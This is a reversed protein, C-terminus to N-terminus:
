VAEKIEDIMTEFKIDSLGLNRKNYEEMILSKINAETISLQEVEINAYDKGDPISETEGATSDKKTFTIGPYQAKLEEISNFFSHNKPGEISVYSGVPIDRMVKALKRLLVEVVDEEKFYFTKFIMANENKIFRSSGTGTTLDLVVEVMGKDEEEKHKLRDWSGQAIIRDYKSYTHVHGINIFYKVIGLYDSETHSAPSTFGRLQYHFMGHMMALDVQEMGEEKMLDRVEQYTIQADHNIEDPIYLVSLGSGALTEIYIQDVYKFDFDLKLLEYVTRFIQSQGWDHSPTGELVRLIVSKRQCFRMLDGVFHLVEHYDVSNTDMKDDFFDGPIFIADLYGYKDSFYDFEERMSKITFSTPVRRHGLHIDSISLYTFTKM